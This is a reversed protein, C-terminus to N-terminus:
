NHWTVLSSAKANPGLFFAYWGSLRSKSFSSTCPYTKTLSGKPSFTLLNSNVIDTLFNNCIFTFFIYLFDGHTFHLLYTNNKNAQYGKRKSFILEPGLGYSKTPGDTLVRGAEPDFCYAYAM